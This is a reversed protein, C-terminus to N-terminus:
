LNWLYTDYCVARGGFGEKQFILQEDLEDGDGNSSKGFDFYPVHAYYTGLLNNFLLDLAGMQKGEPTASIYQTHVVQPTIYLLTGGMAVTGKYTMFLKIQKPFRQMLLELEDKSHVPHVGHRQQLNNDLIQWFTAIDDTEAVTLGYRLAKRLGSKRSETWKIGRRPVITSSVHRVTLQARCRNTLVYLDEDAPLKHYIWPICKYVVKKFGHEKLYLGIRGLCEAVTVVTARYDTLLGGYTLGQHSYLVGDRENAPLLGVLCNGNYVMLSHDHFRDAHYDMYRRDFLFTGQKSQAVMQNWEEKCDASYRHIELQKKTM